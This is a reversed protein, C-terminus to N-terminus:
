SSSTRMASGINAVNGLAGPASAVGVVYTPPSKLCFVSEGIVDMTSPKSNLPPQRSVLADVAIVTSVISRPPPPEKLAPPGPLPM